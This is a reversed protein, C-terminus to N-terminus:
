QKNGEKVYFDPINSLYEKYDKYINILHSTLFTNHKISDLTNKRQRRPPFSKAKDPALDLFQVIQPIYSWLVDYNIFAIPYKHETDKWWNKFVGEFNFPDYNFKTLDNQSNIPLTNGTLKKIQASKFRKVLSLAQEEPKKTYIYVVKKIDKRELPKKPHKLKDVDNRDNVTYFHRLWDIFFTTGVGGASSIIYM